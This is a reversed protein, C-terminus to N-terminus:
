KEKEWYWIVQKDGSDWTDLFDGHIVAIVHSGTGLLYTGYPHDACFDRVTYCDPCTNPLFHRKYGERRMYIPWIDNSSPMDYLEYGIDTLGKYVARWSKSMVTSIARVTCDNTNKGTPNANFRIFM